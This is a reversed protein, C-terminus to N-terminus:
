LLCRLFVSRQWKMEEKEVALMSWQTRILTSSSTGPYTLFIRLLTLVSFSLTDLSNDLNLM